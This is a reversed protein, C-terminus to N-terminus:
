ECNDHVSLIKINTSVKKSKEEEYIEKNPESHRLCSALEICDEFLENQDSHELMINEIRQFLIRLKNKTLGRTSEIKERQGMTRM